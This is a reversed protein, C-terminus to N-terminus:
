SRHESVSRVASGFELEFCPHNRLQDHLIRTLRSQECQVRYPHDTADAIAGFDFQALVGDQRSRYQFQPAILGQAILPAAVGLAHLMDLTPPHFTSDRPEQSLTPASEFATVPV